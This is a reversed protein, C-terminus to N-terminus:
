SQNTILLDLDDVPRKICSTLSIFFALVLIFKRKM